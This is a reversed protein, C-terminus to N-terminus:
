ATESLARAIRAAVRCNNQVLSLNARLSEGGTLEKLRKLVYPTTERGSIGEEEAEAVAYAIASEVDKADLADEAPPDVVVLMASRFGMERHIRFARVIDEPTDFRHDVPLDDGRSLFLPFMDTQYGIVPIGRTELQERTAPVDLISKAGACVLVMSCEQLATLDTSIDLFRDYHRHVGGIGGTAAVSIGARYASFLMTSVSTSGYEGSAITVALNSTNTKTVTDANGIEAIEAADLGVTLKGDLVAVTAPHAGEERVVQECARSTEINVPRPLGHTVITTELAVVPAGTHLAQRVAPRVDFWDAELM